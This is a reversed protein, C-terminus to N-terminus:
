GGGRSARSTSNEKFVRTKSLTLVLKALCFENLLAKGQSTKRVMRFGPKLYSPKGYCVSVYNEILRNETGYPFIIKPLDTKRVM